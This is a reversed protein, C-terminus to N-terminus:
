VLRSRDTLMRSMTHSFFLNTLHSCYQVRAESGRISRTLVMAGIRYRRYRSKSAMPSTISSSTLASQYEADPSSTISYARMFMRCSGPLDITATLCILHLYPEMSTGHEGEFLGTIMEDYLYVWSRELSCGVHRCVFCCLVAVDSDVADFIGITEESLLTADREEKVDVKSAIHVPPIWCEDVRESCFPGDEEDVVCANTSAFAGNGGAEDVPSSIGDSHDM